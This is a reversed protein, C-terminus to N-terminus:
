FPSFQVDRTAINVVVVLEGGDVVVREPYDRTFV